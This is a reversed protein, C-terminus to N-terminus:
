INSLYNEVPFKEKMQYDLATDIAFQYQEKSFSGNWVVKVTRLNQHHTIRVFSENLVIKEDM